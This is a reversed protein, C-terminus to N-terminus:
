SSARKFAERARMEKAYDKMKTSEYEFKAAYAWNLCHTLLIDVLTFEEGAAFPTTIQDALRNLNTNFEYKLSPKVEAVRHEEPLGFSHRAATWLVADLEDLILHFRSDQQARKMSGKSAMLGGHKDALYLMIASSDTLVTDGEKMVPVKGSPNMAYIIETRPMSETLRYEQGLEELTWLVRFARSAKTGYVDYM